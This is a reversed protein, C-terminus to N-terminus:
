ILRDATDKRSLITRLEDTLVGIDIPKAIHSQMGADITARVDEEFANATM